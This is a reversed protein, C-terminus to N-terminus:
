GTFLTDGLISTDRHTINLFVGRVRVKVRESTQPLRISTNVQMIGAKSPNLAMFDLVIHPAWLVSVNGKDGFTLNQATCCSLTKYNPSSGSIYISVYDGPNGARSIDLLNDRWGPTFRWEYGFGYPEVSYLLSNSSNTLYNEFGLTNLEIYNIGLEDVGYLNVFERFRQINGLLHFLHQENPDTNNVTSIFSLDIQVFSPNRNVNISSALVTSLQTMINTYARLLKEQGNLELVATEQAKAWQHQINAFLSVVVLLLLASITYFVSRM